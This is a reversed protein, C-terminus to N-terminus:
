VYQDEDIDLITAQPVFDTSDLNNEFWSVVEIDNLGLFGWLTEDYELASAAAMNVTTLSDWQTFRTEPIGREAYQEQAVATSAFLVLAPPTLILKM